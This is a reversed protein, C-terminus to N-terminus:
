FDSENNKKDHLSANDKKSPSEPSDKKRQQDEEEGSFALIEYFKWGCFCVFNGFFFRMNHEENNVRTPIMKLDMITQM